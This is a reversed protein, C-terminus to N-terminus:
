LTRQNACTRHSQCCLPGALREGINVQEGNGLDGATHLVPQDAPSPTYRPAFSVAIQDTTSALPDPSLPQLLTTPM